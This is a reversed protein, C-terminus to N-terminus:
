FTNEGLRSEVYFSGDEQQMVSASKINDKDEIQFQYSSLINAKSFCLQSRFMAKSLEVDIELILHDNEEKAMPNLHYVHEKESLYMQGDKNYIKVDIMSLSQYFDDSLDRIKM